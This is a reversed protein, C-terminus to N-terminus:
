LSRSKRPDSAAPPVIPIRTGGEILRMIYPRSVSVETGSSYKAPIIGPITKDLKNISAIKTAHIYRGAQPPVFTSVVHACRM